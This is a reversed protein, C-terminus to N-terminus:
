GASAIANSRERRGIRWHLWFVVGAALMYMLSQLFSGLGNRRESRLASELAEKRLRPIESAQVAPRDHPLSQLFQEDNMAREYAWGGVTVSPLFIRFLANSGTATSVLLFMLSVLCAALAYIELVSKKM